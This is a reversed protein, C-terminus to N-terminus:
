ERARYGALLADVVEATRLATRGTSPCTGHGTLEDVVTQILPLQVTEPNPASVERTGGPTVVRIPM